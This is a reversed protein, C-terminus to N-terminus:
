ELADLIAAVPDTQQEQVTLSTFISELSTLHSSSALQEFTGDAAVVGNNILIIRDSIKEVVDMMHSSYFITKGKSAMQTILNKVLIISNADLGSLPEDMILVEPNHIIGAAILVKQRMGKSFTEMRQHLHPTLGLAALISEIRKASTKRDLDYLDAMFTLYEFPTLVEYLDALEPIYGIIRKVELPQMKVSMGKVWVEGEFNNLMGCIIKATTSKGAGNPGIYGIVEGPYVKLSIGKLVQKGSYHKVVQNLEIIPEIKQEM